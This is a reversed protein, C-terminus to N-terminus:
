PRLLLQEDKFSLLAGERTISEIRYLGDVKEGEVYKRGNITVMRDAPVDTYVFTDLRMKAMADVLTAPPAPTAPPSPAVIAAPPRVVAPSPAPQPAAPPAPVPVTFVPAPPQDPAPETQPTPSRPLQGFPSGVSRGGGGKMEGSSAALVGSGSSQRSPAPNSPPTQAPEPSSQGPERRQQTAVPGAPAPAVPAPPAIEVARAPTPALSPDAPSAPLSTESQVRFTMATPPAVPPSPRWLWISLGGGVLVAGAAVWFGFRRGTTLVPVHVTSLSPVRALDREREAKKLADLIFSM